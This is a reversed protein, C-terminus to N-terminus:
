GGVCVCVCSITKGLEAPSHWESMECISFKGHLPLRETRPRAPGHPDGGAGRASGKNGPRLSSPGPPLRTDAARSQADSLVTVCHGRDAASDCARGRGLPADRVARGAGPLSPVRGAADTRSDAGSRPNMEHGYTGCNSVANSWLM